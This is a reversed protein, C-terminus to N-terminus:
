YTGSYKKGSMQGPKCGRVMGGEAFNKTERDEREKMENARRLINGEVLDDPRAMPRRSTKPALTSTTIQSSTLEDGPM